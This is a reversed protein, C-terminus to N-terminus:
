GRDFLVRIREGEMLFEDLGEPPPLPGNRWWMLESGAGAVHQDRDVAFIHRLDPTFLARVGAEDSGRLRYARSFEPSDDFDIDQGGFLAAIRDWIGEPTLLFQPLGKEGARSLAWLLAAISHTHASKGHGTTWEYEFATFPVGSRTGTITIGWRRAHGQSLLPCTRAHREEAGPQEHEFRFGRELCFQQYAARRRRDVVRGYAVVAALLALFSGAAVAVITEPHTQAVPTLQSLNGARDRAAM